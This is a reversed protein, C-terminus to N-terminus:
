WRPRIEVWGSSQRAGGSVSYKLAVHAGLAEGTDNQTARRGSEDFTDRLARCHLEGNAPLIGEGNDCYRTASSVANCSLGTPNWIKIFVDELATAGEEKLTLKGDSPNIYLLKSITEQNSPDRDGKLRYARMKIVGELPISEQTESAWTIPITQDPLWVKAPTYVQGKEGSTCEIRLDQLVLVNKLNGQSYNTIKFFSRRQFPEFVDM